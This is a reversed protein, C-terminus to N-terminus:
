MDYEKRVNKKKREIQIIKQKDLKLKLLEIKIGQDKALERKQIKIRFYMNKLDLVEM